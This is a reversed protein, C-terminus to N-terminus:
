CPLTRASFRTSGSVICVISDRPFSRVHGTLYYVADGSVAVDQPGGAEVQFNTVHSDLVVGQELDILYLSDSTVVYALSGAVVIKQIAMSSNGFGIIRKTIPNFPVTLDILMLGAGDLGVLADNGWFAVTNATIGTLFYILSPQPSSVDYIGLGSSGQAILAVSGSVAIQAAAAATPQVGV